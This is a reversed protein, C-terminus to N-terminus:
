TSAESTPEHEKQAPHKRHHIACERDGPPESFVQRDLLAALRHPNRCHVGQRDRPLMEAIQIAYLLQHLQANSQCRRFLKDLVGGDSVTCRIQEDLEEAGFVTM